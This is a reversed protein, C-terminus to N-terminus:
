RREDRRIVVPELAPEPRAIVGISGLALLMSLAAMWLPLTLAAIVGTVLLGVIAIIQRQERRIFGDRPSKQHRQMIIEVRSDRESRLSSGVNRVVGSALRKGVMRM